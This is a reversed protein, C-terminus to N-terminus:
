RLRKGVTGKLTTISPGRKRWPLSRYGVKKGRRTEARELMRHGWKTGVPTHHSMQYGWWRWQKKSVPGLPYKEPKGPM